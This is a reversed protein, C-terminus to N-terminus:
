IREKQWKVFHHAIYAILQHKCKFDIFDKEIKTMREIEEELDNSKSAYNAMFLMGQYDREQQLEAVYEAFKVLGDFTLECKFDTSHADFYAKVKDQLGIEGDYDSEAPVSKVIEEWDKIQQEKPTKALYEKLGEVVTM